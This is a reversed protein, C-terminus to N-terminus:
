GFSVNDKVIEFRADRKRVKDRLRESKTRKRGVKTSERERKVHQNEMAYRSYIHLLCAM